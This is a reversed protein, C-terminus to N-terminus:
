IMKDIIIMSIIVIVSFAMLIYEKVGIIKNNKETKEM